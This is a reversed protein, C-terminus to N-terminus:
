NRSFSISFISQTSWCFSQLHVSWILVPTRQCSGSTEPSSVDRGSWWWCGFELRQASMYCCLHCRRIIAWNRRAFGYEFGDFNRDRAKNWEHLRIPRMSSPKQINRQNWCCDRRWLHSKRMNWRLCSSWAQRPWPYSYTKQRTEKFILNSINKCYIFNIIMLAIM